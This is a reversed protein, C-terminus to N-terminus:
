FRLAFLVRAQIQEPAIPGLSQSDPTGCDNADGVIWYGREVSLTGEPTGPPEIIRGLAYTDQPTTFLVVDELFLQPPKRDLFLHEGPDYAAIPSCQETPLQFMQYRSALYWFGLVAILLAGYRLRRVWLNRRALSQALRQSAPIPGEITTM